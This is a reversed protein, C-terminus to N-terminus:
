KKTYKSIDFETSTDALSDLYDKRSRFVKKSILLDGVHRTDEDLDSWEPANSSRTTAQASRVGSQAGEPGAPRSGHPAYNPYKKFIESEVYELVENLDKEPYLTSYIQGVTDADKTALPDTQYWERNRAKFDNAAQVLEPPPQIAENEKVAAQTAALENHASAISRELGVAAQADSANIAADRQAALQQIHAQLENERARYQRTLDDQRKRNTEVVQRMTSRLSTLEKKLSGVWDQARTVFTKADVWREPDGGWEGQPKWGQARAEKEFDVGEFNGTAAGVSVGTDNESM